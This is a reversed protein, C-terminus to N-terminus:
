GGSTGTALPRAPKAMPYSPLYPELEGMELPKLVLVTRGGGGQTAYRDRGVVEFIEQTTTDQGESVQQNWGRVVATVPQVVADRYARYNRITTVPVRFHCRILVEDSSIVQKVYCADDPLRGIAGAQPPFSITPVTLEQGSQLQKLRTELQSIKLPSRQASPANRQNRLEHELQLIAGRRTTECLELFRAIRPPAVAPKTAAPQMPLVAILCVLNVLNM